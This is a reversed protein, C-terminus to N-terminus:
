YTEFGVIVNDQFKIWVTLETDDIIKGKFYYVEIRNESNYVICNDIEERKDYVELLEGNHRVYELWEVDEQELEDYQKGDKIESIM